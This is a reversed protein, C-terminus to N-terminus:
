PGDRRTEGTGESHFYKQGKELMLGRDRLIIDQGMDLM